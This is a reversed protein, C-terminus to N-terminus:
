TQDVKDRVEGPQGRSQRSEATLTDPTVDGDLALAAGLTKTGPRAAKYRRISIENVGDVLTGPIAENL